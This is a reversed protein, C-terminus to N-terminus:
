TKGTWRDWLRRGVKAAGGAARQAQGAKDEVWAFSQVAKHFQDESMGAELAADRLSLEGTRFRRAIDRLQDVKSDGAM